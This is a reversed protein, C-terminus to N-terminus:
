GVQNVTVIASPIAPGGMSSTYNPMTINLNDSAWYIEVYDGSTMSTFFNWAAVVYPSNTNVTIRTNTNTVELGNKVVFNKDAM